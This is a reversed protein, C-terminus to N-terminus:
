LAIFVFFVNETFFGDLIDCICVLSFFSFNSRDCDIRMAVRRSAFDFEDVFTHVGCILDRSLRGMVIETGASGRMRFVSSAM